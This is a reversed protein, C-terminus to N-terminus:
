LLKQLEEKAVLVDDFPTSQTGIIQMKEHGKGAILITDDPEAMKLALAIAKKRDPEIHPKNQYAAVIQDIIQLPDENRPNDSTIISIDAYKQAARAMGARRGPDRNGGCGFVVIIRKSVERLAKLVNELADGTHAFDVFIPAGPVQELRGPVSEFTALFDRITELKAGLQIGVSIAGLLNYVNFRGILHSTFHCSNVDFETGSSSYRINQARIEGKEIGFTLGQGMNWPSDANFIGKKAREFLKRKAAAYEEITRHYDLHDPYLNTFVGIDFDIEDVRKQDLGHSSVELVAAKCGRIVMERLLKQNAIVDHTTHTSFFRNEGVVTEVTGILGCPKQLGDLLHKILYTTTTKGKSGTVGIIELEKSPKGYYRSALQAEIEEPKCIIQTLDLFPNYLDTVVAVAGSSKAMEIFQSGDHTKGRKAIFLNGPAVMRSDSTLGTISLDKSGKVTVKLGKTLQRLEM